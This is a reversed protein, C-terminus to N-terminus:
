GVRGVISSFSLGSGVGQLLGLRGGEVWSGVELLDVREFGMDTCGRLRLGLKEFYEKRMGSKMTGESDVGGLRLELKVASNLLGPRWHGRIMRRNCRYLSRSSAKEM